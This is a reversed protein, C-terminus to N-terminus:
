NLSIETFPSYLPSGKTVHMIQQNLDMLITCVTGVKEKVRGPIYKRCIPLKPDTDDLLISKMFELSYTKHSKVLKSALKYRNYSSQLLDPNSNLNENKLFHNTHIFHKDEVNLLYVESGGFEIDQYKGSKDGILINGSQGKDVNKALNIVEEISKGDLMARLIIHIPLGNLEENVSLFNLCVGLGSNNFGIKGIMGPETVQIIKHGDPKSLRMVFALEEFDAAWDWNQGLVAPNKFYLATCETSGNNMNSLIESRSNIAYIWLPDVDSAEAISEIEVSYDSNYAQIKNKFKRASNLIFKRNSERGDEDLSKTIDTYFKIVQLIRKKLLKGHQSGIEEPSGTIDVVPFNEDM